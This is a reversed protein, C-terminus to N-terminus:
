FDEDFIGRDIIPQFFGPPSAVETDIIVFTQLEQTKGTDRRISSTNTLYNALGAVHTNSLGQV